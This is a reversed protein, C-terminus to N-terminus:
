TVLQNYYFSDFFAGAPLDEPLWHRAIQQFSRTFNSKVNYCRPDRVWNQASHQAVLNDFYLDGQCDIIEIFLTYGKVIGIVSDLTGTARQWDDSLGFSIQLPTVIDRGQYHSYVEARFSARPDPGAAQLETKYSCELTLPLVFEEYVPVPEYQAKTGRIKRIVFYEKPHYQAIRCSTAPASVSIRGVEVQYNLDPTSLGVLELKRRWAFDKVFFRWGSLQTADGADEWLQKETPTLAAWAQGAAPLVSKQTIGKVKSRSTFARNRRVSSITFRDNPTLAKSYSANFEDPVTKFTIKAM